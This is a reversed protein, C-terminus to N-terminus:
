DCQARAWRRRASVLVEAVTEVCTVKVADVHKALLKRGAEVGSESAVVTVFMVLDKGGKFVSM